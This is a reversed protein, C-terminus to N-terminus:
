QDLKQWFFALSSLVAIRALPTVASAKTSVPFRPAEKATVLSDASLAAL